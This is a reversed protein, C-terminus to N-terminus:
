RDIKWHGQCADARVERVLPGNFIQAIALLTVRERHAARVVSEPVPIQARIFDMPRRAPLLHETVVLRLDAGVGALPQRTHVVLIELPYLPCERSMKRAAGSVVFALVPNKM